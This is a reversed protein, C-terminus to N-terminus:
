LKAAVDTPTLGLAERALRLKEGFGPHFIAPHAASVTAANM